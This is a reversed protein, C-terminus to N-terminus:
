PMCKAAPTWLLEVPGGASKGCYGALCSLGHLVAGGPKRVLVGTREEFAFGKSGPREDSKRWDCQWAYDFAQCSLHTKAGDGGLRQTVGFTFSDIGNPWDGRSADFLLQMGMGNAGPGILCLRNTKDLHSLIPLNDTRAFGGAYAREVKECQEAPLKDLRFIVDDKTLPLVATPAQGPSRLHENLTRAALGTTRELQISAGKPAILLVPEMEAMAPGILKCGLHGGVEQCAFREARPTQDAKTRLYLQIETYKQEPWDGGPDVVDLATSRELHARTGFEQWLHIALVTQVPNAALHEASYTRGWCVNAGPPFVAKLPAAAWSTAWTLFGLVFWLLKM